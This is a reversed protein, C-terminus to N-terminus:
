SAEKCDLAINSTLSVTTKLLYMYYVCIMVNFYRTIYIGACTGAWKGTAATWTITGAIGVKSCKCQGTADATAGTPCAVAPFSVVYRMFM